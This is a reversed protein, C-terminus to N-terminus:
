YINGYKEIIKNLTLEEIQVGFRAEKEKNTLPNLLRIKPENLYNEIFTKIELHPPVFIKTGDVLTVEMGVFETPGKKM